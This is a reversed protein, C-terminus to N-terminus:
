ASCPTNENESRTNAKGFHSMLWFPIKHVFDGNHFIGAETFDTFDHDVAFPILDGGVNGFGKLIGIGALGDCVMAPAYRFTVYWMWLAGALSQLDGDDGLSVNKAQDGFGMERGGFLEVVPQKVIHGHRHDILAHVQGRFTGLLKEGIRSGDDGDALVPLSIFVAKRGRILLDCGVLGFDLECFGELAGIGIDEDPLERLNEALVSILGAFLSQVGGEALFAVENRQARIVIQGGLAARRCAPEIDPNRGM